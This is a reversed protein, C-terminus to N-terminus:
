VLYRLTTRSWAETGSLQAMMGNLYAVLDRSCGGQAILERVMREHNREWERIMAWVIM